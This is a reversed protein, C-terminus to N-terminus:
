RRGELRDFTIQAGQRDGRGEHERGGDAVLAESEEQTSPGPEGGDAGEVGNLEDISDQMLFPGRGIGDGDGDDDTDKTGGGTYRGGARGLAGGGFREDESDGAYDRGFFEAMDEARQEGGQVVNGYSTVGKRLAVVNPRTQNMSRHVGAETSDYGASASMLGNQLGSLSLRVADSMAVFAKWNEQFLEQDMGKWNPLVGSIQSDVAAINGDFAAIVSGLNGAVEMLSEARVRFQVM